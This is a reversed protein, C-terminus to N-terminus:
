RRATGLRQRSTGDGESHIQIRSARWSLGQAFRHAGRPAEYLTLEVEESEADDDVTTTKKTFTPVVSARPASARVTAPRVQSAASTSIAPAAEDTPRTASNDPAAPTVRTVQLPAKDFDDTKFALKEGLELVFHQVGANLGESFRGAAVLGRMLQGMEGLVGEPLDKQVSRSFQTFSSKENVSLVLLLSKKATTRAGVNWEQALLRSFDFIDKGGTSEM